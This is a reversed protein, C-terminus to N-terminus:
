RTFTGGEPPFCGAPPAPPSRGSRVCLAGNHSTRAPGSVGSWSAQPTHRSTTPIGTRERVAQCCDVPRPARHMILSTQDLLRPARVIAMFPIGKPRPPLRSPLLPAVHTRVPCFIIGDSLRRSTRAPGCARQRPLYISVASRHACRASEPVTLSRQTSRLATGCPPTPTVSATRM